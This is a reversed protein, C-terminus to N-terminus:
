QFSTTANQNSQPTIVSLIQVDIHKRNMNITEDVKDTMLETVTVTVETTQMVHRNILNMDIPALITRQRQSPRDNLIERQQIRPSASSASSASSPSLLLSENPM